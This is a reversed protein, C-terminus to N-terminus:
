SAKVCSVAPPLGPRIQDLTLAQAKEVVEGHYTVRVDGLKAGWAGVSIAKPVQDKSEATDDLFVKVAECM